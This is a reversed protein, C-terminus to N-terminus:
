FESPFGLTLTLSESFMFGLAFFLCATARPRIPPLRFVFDLIAAEFRFPLNPPRGFFAESFPEFLQRSSSKSPRSSNKLTRSFTRKGLDLHGRADCITRTTERSSGPLFTRTDCKRRSATRSGRDSTGQYSSRCYDPCFGSPSVASRNLGNSSAFAPDRKELTGVACSESHIEPKSFSSPSRRHRKTRSSEFLANLSDRTRKGFRQAGRRSAYKFRLM